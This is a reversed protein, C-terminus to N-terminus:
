AALAFTCSRVGAKVIILPAATGILAVPGLRMINTSPIHKKATIISLIYLM